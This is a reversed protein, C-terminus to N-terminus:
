RFNGNWKKYIKLALFYAVREPATHDLLIESIGVYHRKIQRQIM